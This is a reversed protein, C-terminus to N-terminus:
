SSRMCVCVCVCVCVRVSEKGAIASACARSAVVACEWQLGDGRELNGLTERKKKGKQCSHEAHETSQEGQHRGALLVVQESM